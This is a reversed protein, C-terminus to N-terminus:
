HKFIKRFIMSWLCLRDTGSELVEVLMMSKKCPFFLMNYLVFNARKVSSKM